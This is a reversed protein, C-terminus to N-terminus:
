NGFRYRLSGGWMRPESYIAAATGVSAYSSLLAVAHVNNTVNRVFISADLRTDFLGSWDLRFNLNGYAAQKGFGDALATDNLWVSSQRYYDAGLTIGGWEVPIPLSYSLSITGQHKPTGVFPSDVNPLQQGTFINTAFGPWEKYSADIYSYTLALKLRDTVLMQSSLELGQIDARAINNVQTSPAGFAGVLSQNRQIDKYWMKFLALDSRMRMGGIWWDSKVGFEIDDVLEPKYNLVFGAPPNSPDGPIANTGGPKFGRRHALYLLTGDGLRYDLSVTWSSASDDLGPRAIVPGTPVLNGNAALQVADASRAGRTGTSETWRYGATLKLGDLAIESLDI